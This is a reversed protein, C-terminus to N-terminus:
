KIRKAKKMAKADEESVEAIMSCKDDKVSSTFNVGWLFMAKGEPLIHDTIATVKVTKSKTM